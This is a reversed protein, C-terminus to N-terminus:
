LLEKQAAKEAKKKQYYKQGYEKRKAKIHEIRKQREEELLEDIMRIRRIPDDWVGAEKMAQVKEKSITLKKPRGIPKAKKSELAEIRKSLDIVTKVLSENKKMLLDIYTKTTTLTKEVSKIKKDAGWYMGLLQKNTNRVGEIHISDTNVMDVQLKAVHKVVNEIQSKNHSLKESIDSKEKNSIFM